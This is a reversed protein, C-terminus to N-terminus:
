QKKKSIRSQVLRQYTDRQTPTLLAYGKQHYPVMEWALATQARGVVEIDSRIRALDPHLVASDTAYVQYATKLRKNDRITARAMGFKLETERLFQVTSLHFADKHHLIWYPGPHYLGYHRSFSFAHDRFYKQQAHKQAPSMQSLLSATAVSAMVLGPLIALLAWGRARGNKSFGSV